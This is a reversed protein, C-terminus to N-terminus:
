RHLSHHTIKKAPEHLPPKKCISLYDLDRKQGQADSREEFGNLFFERSCSQKHQLGRSRPWLPAFYLVAPTRRRESLMRLMSLFCASLTYLVYLTWALVALVTQYYM